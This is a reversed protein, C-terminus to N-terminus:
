DVAADKLEAFSAQAGPSVSTMLSDRSAAGAINGNGVTPMTQLLHQGLRRALALITFTPSYSPGTPFVASGAVYLNDTGFVRCNTDVVGSDPSASMRTTGMQHAADTMSELSPPDDGFDFTGLGVEAFREALLEMAFVRS